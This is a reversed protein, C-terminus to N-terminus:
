TELHFRRLPEYSAGSPSLHSRYLTVVPARFPELQPPSADLAAARVGRKVRAFTVHPWFPQKEPKYFRAAALADSVAAQVAVCRQGSDTLDLAFLRPERRPGVAHVSSFALLPAAARGLSSFAAEGVADIEKEARYGLFVLTVHLAAPTVPRLDSRGTLAADRWSVLASRAEDPLELAVFLRARPSGPRGSRGVPGSEAESPRKRAM